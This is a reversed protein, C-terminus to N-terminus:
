ASRGALDVINGFLGFRFRGHDRLARAQSAMAYVRDPRSCALALSAAISDDDYRFLLANEGHVFLGRHALNDELIPLCGANLANCTRDHISDNIPSVSLVARCLRM